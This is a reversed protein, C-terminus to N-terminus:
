IYIRGGVDAEEAIGGGVDAEEHEFSYEEERMREGRSGFNKQGGNLSNMFGAKM